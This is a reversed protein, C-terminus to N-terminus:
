VEMIDTETVIGQTILAEKVKIIADTYSLPNEIQGPTEITIDKLLRWEPVKIPKNVLFSSQETAFFIISSGKEAQVYVPQNTAIPMEIEDNESVVKIITDQVSIAGLPIVDDPNLDLPEQIVDDKEGLCYVEHRLHNHRWDDNKAEKSLYPYLEVIYTKGDNQMLINLFLVCSDLLQGRFKLNQINSLQLM